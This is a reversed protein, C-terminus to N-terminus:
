HSLTFVEESFGMNGGLVAIARDAACRGVGGLSTIHFAVAVMLAAGTLAWSPLLCRSVGYIDTPVLFRRLSM